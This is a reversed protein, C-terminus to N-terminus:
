LYYGISLSVTPKSFNNVKSVNVNIPGLVTKYRVNLGYCFSNLYNLAQTPEKSTYDFAYGLNDIFDNLDTSSYFLNAFPTLFLKSTCEWQFGLRLSSFASAIIEGNRYGWLDVTGNRSTINIGGISFYEAFSSENALTIINTDRIEYIDQVIIGSKISFALSIKKHIPIYDDFLVSVRYSPNYKYKLDLPYKVPNLGLSDTITFYGKFKETTSLTLRNEVFLQSGKTPYYLSNLTNRQYNLFASYINCDVKDIVLSNLSQDDFVPKLSSYEFLAGLSVTSPVNINYSLATSAAHYKNKYTDQLGGQATYFKQQIDENYYSTFSSFRSSRLYKRYNVKFKLSEALDASVVLRSNKGLYNRLTFNLFIGAGFINDYHISGKFRANYDEVAHLVIRAGTSDQYVNYYVKSFYRNSYADVVSKDLAEFTTSDGLKVNIRKLIFDEKEKSSIGEIQISKVLFSQDSVKLAKRQYNGHFDHYEKALKILDPRVVTAVENGKDIIQDSFKFDGASYETMNPTINNFINCAEIDDKAEQIGYFSSSQVLLKDITNLESASMLRGGTYSGIIFNAGMKQLQQVPFNVMVGGDVLLYEGWEVPRFVTPISMSSRMALALNGEALEVPQMTLIDVAMCRYPIPLKNFDTIHNVHRTLRTFLEQLSQGEIIGTVNFQKNYYPIEAIYKTYEDKEDMNIENAPVYQNLIIGWDVTRSLSDIQKGTYGAAYLGGIVSGMSTGTIYDIKIGLSDILKLIGIHALGKAGGGSLCLGIKDNPSLDKGQQSFSTFMVVVFLAFIIHKM